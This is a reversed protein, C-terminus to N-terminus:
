VVIDKAIKKVLPNNMCSNWFLDVMWKGDVELWVGDLIMQKEKISPDEAHMKMCSDSFHKFCCTRLLHHIESQEFRTIPCELDNVNMKSFIKNLKGDLIWHDIDCVHITKMEFEPDNSSLKPNTKWRVMFKITKSEPKAIMTSPMAVAAIACDFIKLFELRTM